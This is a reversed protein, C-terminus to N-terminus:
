YTSIASHFCSDELIVESAFRKECSFPTRTFLQVHGYCLEEANFIDVYSCKHFWELRIFAKMAKIRSTYSRLWLDPLFGGDMCPWSPLWLVM